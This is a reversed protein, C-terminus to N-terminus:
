TKVTTSRGEPTSGLFTIERAVAKSIKSYGDEVSVYGLHAGYHNPNGSHAANAM